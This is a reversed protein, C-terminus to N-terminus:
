HYPSWRSRCLACCEKGVRREESRVSEDARVEFSRVQAVSAPELREMPRLVEPVDFPDIQSRVVDFRLVDDFVPDVDPNFINKLTVSSGVPVRSFDIIVDYRNGPFIELGRM